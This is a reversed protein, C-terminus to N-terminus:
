GSKNLYEENEVGTSEEYFDKSLLAFHYAFMTILMLAWRGILSILARKSTM